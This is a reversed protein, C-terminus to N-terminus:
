DVRKWTRGYATKRDGSLALGINSGAAKKHGKSKLYREADSQSEYEQEFVDNIYSACKFRASKTGDYKGNDYADKRNESQTGLRLKHPRFDIKDDNEHLIIEDSKKNAYEDPFFTMFSLVHCYLSKGNFRLIPYGSILGLYEGSLINEAYKTIYKVRNMDSIEWHGKASESKAIKKWVEDPLDPYVKYSFGFQRSQAYKRIIAVTYKRGFLNKEDKLYENWENATKEEGNKVIIFATKLIESRDQNDRQGSKCLLRINDLTDDDRIKNKHDATHALTPPPGIFTSAIARGILIYRSKGSNDRVGCRNYGEKNKHYLLSKGTKKNVIMWHEDFTYKNFETLTGDESYYKLTEIM